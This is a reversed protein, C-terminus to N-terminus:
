TMKNPARLLFTAWKMSCHATFEVAERWNKHGFLVITYDGDQTIDFTVDTGIWEEPGAKCRWHVNKDTNLARVEMDMAGM